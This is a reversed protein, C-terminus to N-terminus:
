PNPGARHDVVTLLGGDRILDLAQGVIRLRYGHGRSELSVGDFGNVGDYLRMQEGEDGVWQVEKVKRMGPLELTLTDLHDPLPRLTVRGIGSATALAFALQNEPAPHWGLHTDALASQVLTHPSTASCGAVGVGMMVLVLIVSARM